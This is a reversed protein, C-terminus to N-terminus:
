VIQATPAAGQRRGKPRRAVFIDRGGEDRIPEPQFGRGHLLRLWEARSFLGCIHQEHEVRAPQNGERLLYRVGARAQTQSLEGSDTIEIM